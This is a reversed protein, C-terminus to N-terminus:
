GMINGWDETFIGSSSPYLRRHFAAVWCGKAYYLTALLGHACITGLHRRTTDGAVKRQIVDEWRWGPFHDV